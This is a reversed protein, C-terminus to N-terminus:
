RVSPGAGGSRLGTRAFIAIVLVLAAWLAWKWLPTKVGTAPSAAVPANPVRAATGPMSPDIGPADDTAEEDALVAPIRSAIAAEAAPAPATAPAPLSSGLPAAAPSRTMTPDGPDGDQGNNQGIATPTPTASTGPTGGAAGAFAALTAARRVAEPDIKELRVIAAAAQPLPCVRLYNVIPERVFINDAEAKEFLEVLQDIVSWDQWRALDAIVLDALKPEALLLRLSALVRDRPVGQSEEGLFRLAMVAAYTETFPIERGRRNLFLEDILDLGEPGRLTVYCAILADLGSRVEAKEPGLDQNALIAGIREADAKTGCAGLMTAYLRRRNAQVKPNEIWQLLQTPDMRDALGRVDAYPAVAFEDYADRALTEDPDELHRQFFALRDPGKEPLASLKRLYQVARESVPIPSSWVLKPPEIGMLLFLTGVPKEELLITEIPTGDAASHGADAVFDAGKLVEVVAFKGKPLPGEARPSLAGAPPPEVLRVIAAAQSQAIEQAFTLSVASCFPCALVPRSQGVLMGIGLLAVIWHRFLINRM